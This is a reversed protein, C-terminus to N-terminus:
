LSLFEEVVVPSVSSGGGSSGFVGVSASFAGGCGRDSSALSASTAASGDLSGLLGGDIRLVVYEAAAAVAAWRGSGGGRIGRHSVLLTAIINSIM